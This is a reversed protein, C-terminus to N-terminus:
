QNGPLFSQHGHIVKWGNLERMWVFTWNFTRPAAKTGSNDVPAFTGILTEVATNPSLAVIRSDGIQIDQSKYGKYYGTLATHFEDRSPVFVGNNAVAFGPSQTFFNLVREADVHEAADVFDSTAQRVSAEVAARDADSLAGAAVPSPLPSTTNPADVAVKWRGNIKHWITVYNGGDTALKGDPGTYSETYTGYETAVRPSAVDIKTPTWSVKYNPLKLAEAWGARIAAAGSVLPQHSLMYIADAAHVALVRDVDHANLARQWEQGVARIAREDSSQAAVTEALAAIALLAITSVRKALRM